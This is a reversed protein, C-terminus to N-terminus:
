REIEEEREIEPELPNSGMRLAEMDVILEKPQFPEEIHIGPLTKCRSLAVYLQGARFFGPMVNVADFTAGQVKETTLAYAPEIPFQEFSYWEEPNEDYFRHRKVTVVRNKGDLRVKIDDDSVETVTGMSGNKYQSKNVTTRVRMGVAVKCEHDQANINHCNQPLFTKMNDLHSMREENIAKVQVNKPCIFPVKEDTSYGKTAGAEIEEVGEFLGCAVKLLMDAFAPDQQREVKCLNVVKLNLADWMDSEYPHVKNGHLEFYLFREEGNKSLIPGIQTFDAMLILQVPWSTCCVRMLLVEMLDKRVLGVEDVIIRKVGNPLAYQYDEPDYVGPCLGLFSHMTRGKPLKDAADGTFALCVTAKKEKRSLGAYFMNVVLYTKGTGAMGMLLIRENGRLIELAKDKEDAPAHLASQKKEEYLQKKELDQFDLKAELSRQDVVECDSKEFSFSLSPTSFSRNNSLKGGRTYVKRGDFDVDEMRMGLCLGLRRIVNGVTKRSCKYELHESKVIESIQKASMGAFYLEAVLKDRELDLAHNNEAKEKADMYKLFGCERALEEPINLMKPGIIAKTGIFYIGDEHFKSDEVHDNSEYLIDNIENIDLPEEMHANYDLVKEYAVRAKCSLRMLNYVIFLFKKRHDGEVWRKRTFLVDLCRLNFNAARISVDDAGQYVDMDPIYAEVMKKVSEKDKEVAELRKKREKKMNQAQQSYKVFKEETFGFMRYLLEPAYKEQSLRIMRAMRGAKRNMTGPIRCIRTANYVCRDVEIEKELDDVFLEELKDFVYQYVAKHKAVAETDTMKIPMEYRYHLAVGRGSHIVCWPEPIIGVEIAHNIKEIMYDVYEERKEASLKSDKKHGADLDFFLGCFSQVFGQRRPMEEEILNVTVYSDWDPKLLQWYNGGLPVARYTGGWMHGTKPNIVPLYVSAEEEQSGFFSELFIKRQEENSLNELELPAIM